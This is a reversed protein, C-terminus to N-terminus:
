KHLQYQELEMEAEELLIEYHELRSVCEKLYDEIQRIKYNFDDPSLNLNRLVFELKYKINTLIEYIGNFEEHSLTDDSRISRIQRETKDLSNLTSTIKHERNESYSKWTALENHVSEIEEETKEIIQKLKHVEFQKRKLDHSISKMQLHDNNGRQVSM